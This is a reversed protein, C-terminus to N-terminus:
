TEPKTCGNDAPVGPLGRACRGMICDGMVVEGCTNDEQLQQPQRHEVPIAETVIVEHAADTHWEVADDGTGPGLPTANLREVGNLANRM